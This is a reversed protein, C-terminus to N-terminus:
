CERPAIAEAKKKDESLDGSTGLQLLLNEEGM